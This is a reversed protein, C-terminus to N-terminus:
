WRIVEEFLKPIHKPKIGLYNSVDWQSYLDQNFGKYLAKCMSSGNKDFTDRPVNTFFNSQGNESAKRQAVKDEDLEIKYQEMKEEFLSKNMYGLDLIRRIIVERSVSYINSLKEILHDDIINHKAIQQEKELFSAPVLFEGAVANCFIEEKDTSFSHMENCITSRRKLIHVLEHIISFTKAPPRDKNNIGIIPIDDFYLAVGRAVELDVNEFGAVMIGKEEVKKRVLLFLKRHSSTAKQIEYTIGLYKRLQGALIDADNLNGTFSFHDISEGLEEKIDLVIKRMRLLDYMALNLASDDENISGAIKRKNQVKPLKDLPIYEPLMYLGAFPVRYCRAIDKAQKITPLAKDQCDEWCVIKSYDYKTFRNVYEISVNKHERILKLTGKNILAYQIVM